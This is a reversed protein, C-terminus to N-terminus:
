KKSKYFSTQRYWSVGRRLLVGVIAAFPVALLIGLFGFWVGGALLAFIVWVPHLGVQEGVLKPTLFYSELIQGIMFVSGLLIWLTLTADQSFAILVSLVVGTLFGFYPVFSLIGALFGVLLGLDLGILSLSVGYFLALVFCVSLQGRIFGSLTQNIEAWISKVLIEKHKPILTNIQESVLCWDKLVYFLVIPTILLLSLVNFVVLGGSFLGALGTGVANLLKFANQTMGQSIQSLQEPTMNEQTYLILKEVAHWLVNVVAPVKALFDLIQSQLIPLIILFISIVCLCFLSVVTATAVSRNIKFRCFSVVAPHLFYALIFGLVFPLLISKLTFLLILCIIVFAAIMIKQFRM